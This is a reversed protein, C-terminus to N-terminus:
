RVHLADAGWDSAHVPNVGDPRLVYCSLTDGGNIGSYGCEFYDFIIMNSKPDFEDTM